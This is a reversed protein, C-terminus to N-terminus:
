FKNFGSYFWSKSQPKFILNDTIFLWDHLDESRRWEEFVYKNTAVQFLGFCLGNFSTDLIKILNKNKWWIIARRFGHFINKMSDLISKENEFYEIKQRKEMGKWVKRVWFSMHFHFLIIDHIPKCLNASIM